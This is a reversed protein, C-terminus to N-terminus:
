SMSEWSPETETKKNVADYIMKWTDASVIGMIVPFRKM